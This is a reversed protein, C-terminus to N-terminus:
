AVDYLPMPKHIYIEVCEYDPGYITVFKRGRIKSWKTSLAGPIRQALLQIPCFAPGSSIVLQLLFISGKNSTMSWGDMGYSTVKNNKNNMDM